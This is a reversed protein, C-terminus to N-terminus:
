RCPPRNAVPGKGSGTVGLREDRDAKLVGALEVVETDSIESSIGKVGDVGNNLLSVYETVYEDSSLSFTGDDKSGTTFLIRRSFVGSWYRGCSKTEKPRGARWARLMEDGLVVNTGYCTLGVRRDQKKEETKILFGILERLIYYWYVADRHGRLVQKVEILICVNMVKGQLLDGM